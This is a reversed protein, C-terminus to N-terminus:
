DAPLLYPEWFARDYKFWAHCGFPLIGGTMEFSERPAVEFAFRLAEQVPPTAFDPKYFSARYAFFNDEADPWHRRIEWQAANIGALSKALGLPWTIVRDRLRAPLVAPRNSRLVELFSQVKRLSFGGNGVGGTFGGYTRDWPNPEHTLAERFPAGVYDYGRSCWDILQDSLALADLHYILIYEYASFAEYLAPSLMLRTHAIVSGFRSDPFRVVGFGPFDATLSGANFSEPAVVFRDYGGLFHQLHRLSIREDASLGPRSSLPVVVAVTKM